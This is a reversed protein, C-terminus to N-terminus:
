ADPGPLLLTFATPDTASVTLRGGAAEALERAVALGIGSGFGTTTGREFAARPAIRLTGEDTVDVAIAGTAERVTILVTGRGHRLANDLLVDLVQDTTRGPLRLPGAGSHVAVDLRRGADAFAGHWRREARASLEAATEDPTPVLEGSPAGALRLVEDVTRQLHQSRELADELAQRLDTDPSRTADLATELGLQLGALPNRLQHSANASFHRERQLLTTLRAVMTDQATALQDIEVIGCRGARATLDGDAVARATTSLSELPRSLARAQRRAVAIAACLALLVVGLLALWTLLIRHWVESTPTTARVVGIVQESTSVPVAVVLDGGSSGRVVVGRAARRTVDDAQASGSGSRLRMTLDYVGLKGETEPAPLEVEDGAAFQPGVRVAAALATRELEGREDDFFSRQIVVALPVALLVLAVLVAAVAVRVVHARM